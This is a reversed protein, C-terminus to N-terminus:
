KMEAVELLENNHILTLIVQQQYQLDKEYEVVLNVEFAGPDIKENYKFEVSDISNIIVNKVIPLEQKRDGYVNNEVHNYLTAKVMETFEMRYAEFVFQVGGVDNKSTKNNLTFLDSVFLKAVIDAYERKDIEDKSLIMKLKNFLNKYYSTATEKLQYHKIDDVIKVDVVVSPPKPKNLLFVASVVVIIVVVIVVLLTKSLKMCDGM